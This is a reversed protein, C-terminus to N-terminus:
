MTAFLAIAAGTMVLLTIWGLINSLKTNTFVGMIKKSNCIHLIVAILLPATVGYAIATFILTKIPDAGSLDIVLGVMVSIAIVLYFSKAQHWKKNLGEEWGFTETIMYSVSGALVPIALLGTGIVGIAFLIYAANGALPKLAAAADQVTNINMIGNRFLVSGTALIIFYMVLNSFFMGVNVDIRMNIIDAKDVMLTKQKEARDENEM